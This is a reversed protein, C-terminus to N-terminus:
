LSWTAGIDSRRILGDHADQNGVVCECGRRTRFHIDTVDRESQQSTSMLWDSVARLEAFNRLHQVVRRNWHNVVQAFQRDLGIDNMTVMMEVRHRCHQVERLSRGHIEAVAPHCPFFHRREKWRQLMVDRYVIKTEFTQAALVADRRFMNVRNAIENVQPHESKNGTEPMM